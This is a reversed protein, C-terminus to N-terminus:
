GSRIGSEDRRLRHLSHWIRKTTTMVPGARLATVRHDMKGLISPHGPRARGHGFFPDGPDPVQNRGDHRVPNGAQMPSPVRHEDDPLTRPAPTITLRM